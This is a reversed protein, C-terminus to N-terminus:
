NMSINTESITSFFKHMFNKDDNKFRAFTCKDPGMGIVKGRTIQSKQLREFRKPYRNEDFMEDRQILSGM